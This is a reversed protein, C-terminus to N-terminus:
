LNLEVTLSLGGCLFRHWLAWTASDAVTASSRCFRRIKSKRNKNRVPKMGPVGSACNRKSPPRLATLWRATESDFQLCVGYIIVISSFLVRRRTVLAETCRSDHLSAPSQATYRCCKWQCSKNKDCKDPNLHCVSLFFTVPLCPSLHSFVHGRSLNDSKEM